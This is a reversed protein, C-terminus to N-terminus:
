SIHTYKSYASVTVKTNEEAFSLFNSNKYEKQMYVTMVFAITIIDKVRLKSVTSLFLQTIRLEQLAAFM